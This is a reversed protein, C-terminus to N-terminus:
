TWSIMRFRSHLAWMVTSDKRVKRVDEEEAGGSNCWDDYCM